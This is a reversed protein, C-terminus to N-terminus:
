FWVLQSSNCNREWMQEYALNRNARQSFRLYQEVTQWSEAPLPLVFHNRYAVWSPPWFAKEICEMSLQYTTYIADWELNMIKESFSAPMLQCASSFLNKTTTQSLSVFANLLKSRLHEQEIPCHVHIQNYEWDWTLGSKKDALPSYFAFSYSHVNQMIQNTYPCAMLERQAEYVSLECDYYSTYLKFIGLVAMGMGCLGSCLSMCRERGNACRFSRKFLFASASLSLAGVALDAIKSDLSNEDASFYSHAIMGLVPVAAYKTITAIGNWCSRLM